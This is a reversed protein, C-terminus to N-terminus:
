GADPASPPANVAAPAPPNATIYDRALVLAARLTDARHSELAAITGMVFARRMARFVAFWLAAAVAFGVAALINGHYASLAAVGALTAMAAHWVPAPAPLQLPPLDQTKKDQM